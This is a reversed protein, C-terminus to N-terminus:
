KMRPAPKFVINDCQTKRDRVAQSTKTQDLGSAHRIPVITCSIQAARYMAGFSNKSINIALREEELEYKHAEGLGAKDVGLCKIANVLSDKKEDFPEGKFSDACGSANNAQPIKQAEQVHQQKQIQLAQQTVSAASKTNADHVVNAALGELGSRYVAASRRLGETTNLALNAAKFAASIVNGSAADTVFDEIQDDPLAAITLRFIRAEILPLESEFLIYYGNCDANSENQAVHCPQKNDIAFINAAAYNIENATAELYEVFVDGDEGNRITATGLRSILAMLLSMRYLQVQKSHSADFTREDFVHGTNGGPYRVERYISTCGILPICLFISFLLKLFTM